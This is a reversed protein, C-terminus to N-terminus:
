EHRSHGVAAVISRLPLEAAASYFAHVDAGKCFTM